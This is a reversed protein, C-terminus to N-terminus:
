EPRAGHSWHAHVMEWGGGSRRHVQTTNWLGNVTGDSKDYTEVNFTFVATDDFLQVAPNLIQYQVDPIIGQYSRLQNRAADDELKGAAMPDFYTAAADGFLAVYETPDSDAFYPDLATRTLVTLEELVSEADTM